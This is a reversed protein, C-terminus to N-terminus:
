VGAYSHLGTIWMDVGVVDPVLAVDGAPAFWHARRRTETM